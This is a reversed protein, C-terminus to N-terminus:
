PSMWKKWGSEAFAEYTTRIAAPILKPIIPVYVYDRGQIRYGEAWAGCLVVEEKLTAVRSTYTDKFEQLVANRRQTGEDVTGSGTREKKENVYLNEFVGIFEQFIPQWTPNKKHTENLMFFIASCRGAQMEVRSEQAIVTTWSCSLAILVLLSIIKTKTTMVSNDGTAANLPPQVYFYVRNKTLAIATISISARHM